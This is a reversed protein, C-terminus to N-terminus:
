LIKMSNVNFMLFAVAEKNFSDMTASVHLKKLMQHLTLVANSVSIQTPLMFPLLVPVCALLKTLQLIQAEQANDVFEMIDLMVALVSAAQVAGSNMLKAHPRASVM